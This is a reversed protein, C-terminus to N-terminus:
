YVDGDNWDPLHVSIVRDGKKFRTVQDGAGVVEGCMDSCPTFNEGPFDLGRDLCMFDRYNISVSNVKILLDNPGPAPISDEVLRLNKRGIADMRWRKMTKAM